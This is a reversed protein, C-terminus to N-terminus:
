PTRNVSVGGASLAGLDTTALLEDLETIVITREEPGTADHM